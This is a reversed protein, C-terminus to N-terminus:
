IKLDIEKRSLAVSISFLLFLYTTNGTTFFSGTSKVPFIEVILLFIFPTIINNYNLNTKLFYKKCFTIYIIILFFLITIAFGILGTETLMELYYNHPHMNCVMKYNPNLSFNENINQRQHCYYRFSKIGGGFFKNLRWTEYFTSFEKLYQPGSSIDDSGSTLSNIMQKSQFYFTKFNYNAKSNFNYIAGFLLSFIILCPILLNRAQKHFILVLIISTIFLILPMRNGSFIIGLLFIIFLMTILMISIKKNNEKYFIPVIFFAFLSFRQIYGGAILEDGFPGGLKRGSGSTDYGFIDKGYILQFFIDLSVFLAGLSCTIFFPKLELINKEILYRTVFYFFLYKLFLFSIFTTTFYGRWEMENMYFKFDNITGTFIIFLFYSILIKDLFYFKINFINKKYFFFGSIIILIININIIMNGAIFSIPILAFLLSFYNSKNFSIKSILNM